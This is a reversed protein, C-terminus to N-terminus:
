ILNKSKLTNFRHEIYSNGGNTKYDKMCEFIREKTTESLPVGRDLDDFCKTLFNKDQNLTNQTVKIDLNSLEKKIPEFEDKLASKLGNKAYKILTLITGILIALSGLFASIQGLTIGEM